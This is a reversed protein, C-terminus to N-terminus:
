FVLSGQHMWLGSVGAGDGDSASLAGLSLACHSQRGCPRPARPHSRDDYPEFIWFARPRCSTSPAPVATTLFRGRVVGFDLCFHSPPLTEQEKEMLSTHTKRRLIGKHFIPNLTEAIGTKGQRRRWNATYDKRHLDPQIGDKNLSTNDAKKHIPISAIHLQPVMSGKGPKYAAYPLAPNFSPSHKVM